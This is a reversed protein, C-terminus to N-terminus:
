TEHPKVGENIILKVQVDKMIGLGEFRDKYDDTVKDFSVEDVKKIFAILGLKEATECGLLNSAKGKM